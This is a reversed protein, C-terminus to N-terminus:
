RKSKVKTYADQVIIEYRDYDIMKEENGEYYTDHKIRLYLEEGPEIKHIREDNENVFDLNRYLDYGGINVDTIKGDKYYIVCVDFGDIIDKSNNKVKM